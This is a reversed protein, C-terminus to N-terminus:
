LPHELVGPAHVSVGKMEWVEMAENETLLNSIKPIADLAFEVEQTSSGLWVLYEKCKTDIELMLPIQVAKENDDEQNICIGDIWLHHTTASNTLHPLALKINTIVKLSTGRLHIEQDRTQDDWTYSVASFPPALELDIHVIRFDRDYRSFRLLRIQCPLLPQYTYEQDHGDSISADMATGCNVGDWIIASSSADNNCLIRGPPYLM